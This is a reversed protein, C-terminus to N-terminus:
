TSLATAIKALHQVLTCVGLLIVVTHIFSINFMSLLISSLSYSVVDTMQFIIFYPLTILQLISMAFGLVWSWCWYLLVILLLGLLPSSNEVVNDEVEQITEQVEYTGDPGQNVVIVSKRQKTCM